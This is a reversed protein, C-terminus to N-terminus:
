SALLFSSEVIWSFKADTLDLKQNFTWYHPALRSLAGAVRGVRKRLNKSKGLDGREDLQFLKEVKRFIILVCITGVIYQITRTSLLITVERINIM